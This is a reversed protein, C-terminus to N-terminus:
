QQQQQATKLLQEQLLQVQKQLDTLQHLQISQISLAAIDSTEGITPVQQQSKYLNIKQKHKKYFNVGALNSVIGDLTVNTKPINFFYLTHEFLISDTSQVPILSNDDEDEDEEEEEEEESPVMSVVSVGEKELESYRYYLNTYNALLVSRNIMFSELVYELTFTPDVFKVTSNLEVCLRMTQGVDMFLTNCVKDLPALVQFLNELADCSVYQHHIIINNPDVVRHEFWNGLKHPVIQRNVLYMTDMTSLLKFLYSMLNNSKDVRPTRNGMIFKLLPSSPAASDYWQMPPTKKSYNIYTIYNGKPTEVLKIEGTVSSYWNCTLTKQTCLEKYEAQAARVETQLKSGLYRKVNEYLMRRHRLLPIEPLWNHVTGCKLGGELHATSHNGALVDRRDSSVLTFFGNCPAEEVYGKIQGIRHVFLVDKDSGDDVCQGVLNSGEINTLFRTVYHGNQKRVDTTEKLTVSTTKKSAIYM